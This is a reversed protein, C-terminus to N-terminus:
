FFATVIFLSQYKDYQFSEKVSSINKTASFQLRTEWSQGWVKSLATSATFYWDNRDASSDNYRSNSVETNNTWNLGWTQPKIQWNWVGTLGYKYYTNESGKAPHYELLAGPGFSHNAVATYLWDVDLSYNLAETDQTSSYGKISEQRAIGFTSSVQSTNGGQGSGINRVWSLEAGLTAAYAELAKIEGLFVYSYKFGLSWTSLSSKDWNFKTAIEHSHLDSTLAIKHSMYHLLLFNYSITQDFVSSYPIRYEAFLLGLNSFSSEADLTQSSPDLGQPLLTANTDHGLGFSAALTLRKKFRRDRAMKFDLVALKKKAMEVLSKDNSFDAVDQYGAKAENYNIRDEEIISLYFRAPDSYRPHQADMLSRFRVTAEEYEKNEVNCLALYYTSDDKNRPFGQSLSLYRKAAQCGREHFSAIGFGLYADSRQGPSLYKSKKVLEGFASLAVRSKSRGLADWGVSFLRDVGTKRQLGKTKALSTTQSGQVFEKTNATASPSNRRAPVSKLRGRKLGKSQNFEVGSSQSFSIWSSVM